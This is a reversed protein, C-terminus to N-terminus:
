ANKECSSLNRVLQSFREEIQNLLLTARRVHTGVQLSPPPPDHDFGYYRTLSTDFIRMASDFIAGHFQSSFDVRSGCYQSGLTEM